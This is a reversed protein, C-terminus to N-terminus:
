KKEYPYTALTTFVDNVLRLGTECMSHRPYAKLMKYAKSTPDLRDYAYFILPAEKRVVTDLLKELAEESFSENYGIIVLARSDIKELKECSTNRYIAEPLNNFYETKKLLELEMEMDEPLESSKGSGPPPAFILIDRKNLNDFLRKEKKYLFYSFFALAAAGAFFTFLYGITQAVTFATGIMDILEKWDM